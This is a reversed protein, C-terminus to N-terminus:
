IDLFTYKTEFQLGSNDSFKDNEQIDIDNEQIDIDIDSIKYYPKCFFRCGLYCGILVFSSQLIIFWVSGWYAWYEILLGVPIALPTVYVCFIGAISAFIYKFVLNM